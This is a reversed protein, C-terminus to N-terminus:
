VKLVHLTVSKVKFLRDEPKFKKAFDNMGGKRLIDKLKLDFSSKGTLILGLNWRVGVEREIEAKWTSFGFFIVFHKVVVVFCKLGSWM